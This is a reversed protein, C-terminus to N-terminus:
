RYQKGSNACGKLGVNSGFDEDNVGAKQKRIQVCEFIKRALLNGDELADVGDVQLFNKYNSCKALSDWVKQMNQILIHLKCM